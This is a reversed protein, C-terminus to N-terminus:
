QHLLPDFTNTAVFHYNPRAKQYIASALERGSTTKILENYLPSLFKRRGTNILFEELRKFAITYNNRIAIVLWATVIESNGSKTLNGFKDLSVLQSQTLTDPLNKLFHLWEQTSWEKVLGADAKGNNNWQTIFADVQKLKESKPEPHNAPLGESFIWANLMQDQLAINFKSQYFDKLAKIFSDTNMSSFAHSSFYNRLFEDFKDRGFQEEIARLFFYGKNYAIDTVGEDPNRGELSLKLKTDAGNNAAQMASISEQLDQMALSAQMEAFDRGYLKEMIRHEFYVTFGENLWFDNWTANTVLNGSWSHALEHAILSTLSRDGALITPTAFTIRPNEMGGFPFSPPLVLVDYREWSYDGYLEEAGAIMKELDELEWTATDLMMPEAYVGSRASVAKFQIDGVSLALLYSSIPQQMEFHYKGNENLQQPNTASMLALLNPPVTVDAEYTFRVGPSDQCPIWSRALIAQSQTFLFPDKKGATQSPQLWQLAEAGPATQYDISIRKTDPHIMIALAQGLLSDVEALRFEGPKNDDLTVKSISLGKTDLIILDEGPSAKIEWTATAKIIRSEFDVTATWKLHSVRANAPISFSHPDTLMTEHERKEVPTCNNFIILLLIFPLTINKM